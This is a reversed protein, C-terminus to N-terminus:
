RGPGFAHRAFVATADAGRLYALLDMAEPRATATLAAPYVIDPQAEPPPTFVIRVSDEGLADSRYVVGLDVEGRAVFARVARVDGATVIRDRAGDWVGLRRMTERAYAGAPVSDPDGIAIRGTWAFPPEAREAPAIVVLSNTLLDVRSDPRVAGAAALRDMWVADALVVLDAPAGAEVQRALTGSGAFVTRVGTGGGETFAAALETLVDTLSAAAFLTVPAPDRPACAGVAALGTLM